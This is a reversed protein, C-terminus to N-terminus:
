VAKNLNLECVLWGNLTKTYECIHPVMVMTLKLAIEDGWFSVKHGKAKMEM